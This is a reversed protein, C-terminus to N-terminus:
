SATLGPGPGLPSPSRILGCARRHAAAAVQAAPGGGVVGGVLPQQGVVGVGPGLPLPPAAGLQIPGALGVAPIASQAAHTLASGPLCEWAARSSAALMPGRAALAARASSSEVSGSSRYTARSRASHSVWM